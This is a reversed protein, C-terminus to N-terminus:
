VGDRPLLEARVTKGSGGASLFWGVRAGLARALCIGRGSVQAPTPAVISGFGPFAPMPDSVDILLMRDELLALRVGVLADPKRAYRVANAALESLILVADEIDGDWQWLTLMRRTHIRALPVSGRVMSYGLSWEQEVPAVTQPDEISAM